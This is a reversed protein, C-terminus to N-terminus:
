FPIEEDPIRATQQSSAQPRSVGNEPKTLFEVRDSIIETSKRTNGDKDEYTSTRLKGEVAVKSGKDLFRECSEAQKGFVTVRHWETHDVWEDGKKVRENTAVSFNCIPLGSASKRLEPKQGLNGTIIVKNVESRWEPKILDFPSKGASAKWMMEVLDESSIEASFFTNGCSLCRRRRVVFISTHWDIKPGVASVEWGNGPSHPHRTTLVKTGKGCKTCNM